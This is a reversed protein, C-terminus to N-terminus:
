RPEPARRPGSSSRRRLWHRDHRDRARRQRVHVNAARGRRSPGSAPCPRARRASPDMIAVSEGRQHAQAADGPGFNVAPIGAAFLTAVDTWAQKPHVAAGTAEVFGRVAAHGLGPPAGPSADLWEVVASTGALREVEARADDLSRNPAVRVNVALTFRDPIVNRASGGHAATIAITDHFQLGEVM